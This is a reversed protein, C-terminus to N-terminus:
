DLDMRAAIGGGRRGGRGGRGRGGGRGRRGNGRSSSGAPMYDAPDAGPPAVLVHARPDEKLLSDSRMKRTFFILNRYKIFLLGCERGRITEVMWSCM